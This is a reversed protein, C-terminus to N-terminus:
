EASKRKNTPLLAAIIGVHIFALECGPDAAARPADEEESGAL